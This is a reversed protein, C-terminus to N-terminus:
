KSEAKKSEFQQWCESPILPPTFCNMNVVRSNPLNLLVLIQTFPDYSDIAKLYQQTQGSLASVKQLDARNSYHAEVSVGNGDTDEHLIDISM